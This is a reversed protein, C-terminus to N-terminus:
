QSVEIGNVMANDVVTSFQITIRGNSDSTTTFAKVVGRNAGGADHFIDYNTLVQQGNISANFVRSGAGGSNGSLSTGWYLENFHLKVNYTTSPYLNPITYTFNGYRVSQYVAQPAPSTVNSTDVSATSTYLTGGSYDRDSLFSGATDGGPNLAVSSVPTPTPTPTLSPLTGSYLDIGNVMANDTVTSFSITVNGSSDATTPFQEIVAKNSGGATAAIDFNNLVNTGNISVNFVRSGVGGSNGSLSTGWYLENFHLRVTYASNATLNPITYSFANGYSVSQYVAQPAPNNVGSIDVTNSSSYPTGGSFDTDAVYSGQTDGGTNIAQVLSPTPVSVVVTTTGAGTVGYNDTISVVVTFTGNTNYVHNLSFTSDPNLDLNQVGSGDGYDVTATYSTATINTDIFSGSSSFAGGASINGSAISLVPGNAVEGDIDTAGFNKIRTSGSPSFVGVYSYHQPAIPVFTYRLSDDVYLKIANGVNCLALNHGQSLDISVEPTVGPNSQPNELSRYFFQLDGSYPNIAIEARDYQVLVDSALVLTVWGNGGVTVDGSVCVLNNLSTQYMQFNDPVNYCNMGFSNFTCDESTPQQSDEGLWNITPTTLSNFYLTNAFAPKVLFLLLLLLLASFTFKKM